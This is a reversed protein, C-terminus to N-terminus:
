GGVGQAPRGRPSRRGPLRELTGSAHGHCVAVALADAEDALLPDLLGLLREIMRQVQLKSAGGYGAVAVKVRAPSYEAPELGALSCALLAAGRAQGLQLASRANRAAFVAEIAAREPAAAEIVRTLGTYIAALRQPLSAGRGPRIVGSEVRRLRSGELDIIGYGTASSGPDIGLIRM